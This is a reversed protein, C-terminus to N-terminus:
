VKADKPDAKITYDGRPNPNPHSLATQVTNETSPAGHLEFLLQHKLDDLVAFANGLIDSSRDNM